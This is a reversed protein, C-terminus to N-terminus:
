NQSRIRSLVASAETLTQDLRNALVHLVDPELVANQGEAAIGAADELIATLEAFDAGIDTEPM